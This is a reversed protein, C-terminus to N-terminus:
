GQAEMEEAMELMKTVSNWNRATGPTGLYRDLASWPLKSQGAGNPFYIYLERGILYLEEPGPKLTLLNKQAAAVPEDALFSIHLKAPEIGSRGAFPNVAIARRFEEPTRLVVAPRFGAKREIAASIKERLPALTKEKTRFVVNGSQVYTRPEELKLSKYIACLADMKIRHGGVNVGRLMSIVVPMALEKLGVFLVAGVDYGVGLPEVGPAFSGRQLLPVGYNQLSPLPTTQHEAGVTANIVPDYSNVPAGAGLTSQVLGSAGAGPGGAGGTTGGAGGGPAGAGFGGIGGGPTGQVVGTNVGRFIGGAQTRLVDTSAIPLTYRAIALDLNNELAM